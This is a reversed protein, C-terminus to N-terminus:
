RGNIWRQLDAVLKTKRRVGGVFPMKVIKHKWIITYGSPTAFAELPTGLKEEDAFRRWYVEGGSPKHPMM